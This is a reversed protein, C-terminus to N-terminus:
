HFICVAKHNSKDAGKQEQKSKSARAQKHKSKDVKTQEQKSKNAPTKTSAIRSTTENKRNTENSINLSKHKPAPQGAPRGFNDGLVRIIRDQWWEISGSDHCSGHRLELPTSEKGEQGAASHKRGPSAEKEDKYTAVLWLSCM